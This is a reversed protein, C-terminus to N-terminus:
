LRGGLFCGVIRDVKAVEIDDPVNQGTTLYSVPKGVKTCINLISGFASTEDLKTFILQCVYQPAFNEVVTYADSEKMSVAILLHTDAPQAADLFNMLERLAGANFQSRGPTDILIIDKDRYDKICRELEKPTLAVKLPISMIQAYTKLHDIAAIRYADITILGVSKELQFRYQAALKALTTTKGVGTPGILIVTRKSIDLGDSVNIERNFYFSLYARPFDAELNGVVPFGKNRFKDELVAINDDNLLSLINYIIDTNVQNRSCCEHLMQLIRRNSKVIPGMIPGMIPGTSRRNHENRLWNTEDRADMNAAAQNLKSENELIDEESPEDDSIENGQLLMDRQNTYSKASTRGAMVSRDQIDNTKNTEDKAPPPIYDPYVNTTLRQGSVDRTPSDNGDTNDDIAAIIEVKDEIFSSSNVGSSLTNDLQRVHIVKAESGLDTRAKDIAAKLSKARYRSIKM